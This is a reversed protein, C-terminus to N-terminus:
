EDNLLMRILKRSAYALFLVHAPKRAVSLSLSLSLSLSPSLSNINIRTFIQIRARMCIAPFM